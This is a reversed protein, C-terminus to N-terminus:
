IRLRGAPDNFQVSFLNAVRIRRRAALTGSSVLVRDIGCGLACTLYMFLTDLGTYIYPPPFIDV